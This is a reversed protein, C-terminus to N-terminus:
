IHVERLESVRFRSALGHHKGQSASVDETQVM